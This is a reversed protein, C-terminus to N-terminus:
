QRQVHNGEGRRRPINRLRRASLGGREAQQKEHGRGGVRKVHAKKIKHQSQGNEQQRRGEEPRPPFPGIPPEPGYKEWKM